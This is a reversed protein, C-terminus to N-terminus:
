LKSPPEPPFNAQGRGEIEGNVVVTYFIPSTPAVMASVGCYKTMSLEVAELVKPLDTDRNPLDVGLDFVIDIQPFIKPHIDRSEANGTMSFSKLELRYKKLLSVVDIASCGLIAAILAEKPSAGLDKGGNNPSDLTFAHGRAKAEFTMENKWELTAKM